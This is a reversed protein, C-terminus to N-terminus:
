MVENYAEIYKASGEKCYLGCIDPNNLCADECTENYKCHKCCPPFNIKSPFNPCVGYLLCVPTNREIEIDEIKITESDKETIEATLGRSTYVGERIKYVKSRFSAEDISIGKKVAEKSTGSFLVEGDRDKITYVKVKGNKYSSKHNKMIFPVRM